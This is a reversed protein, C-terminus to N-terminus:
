SDHGYKILTGDTLTITTGNKSCKIGVINKPIGKIETFVKRNEKDGLGLQGHYNYGCSMLTGDTLRIISHGGWGCIVDVINKPIGKIETLVNRNRHDGLGLQGYWNHGCTMLTGDTLRIFINIPGSIVEVINKPIGKIESFINRDIDDGVGLQGHNNRGCSMLTGDTLRIISYNDQCIVEVINKPIKEIETFVQRNRNDGLGLQGRDNRGCRMLTGDTLRITTYFASCIVEAINKPIEKIEKFLSINRWHGLGLQGYRNHGCGMLTGDELIIFSRNGNYKIAAVNKPINKIEEFDFRRRNDGFGLLGFDNHGWGMLKGDMLQIINNPYDAINKSAFRWNDFYVRMMQENTSSDKEYILSFHMKILKFWDYKEVDSQSLCCLIEHAYGAVIYQLDIPLNKFLVFIQDM